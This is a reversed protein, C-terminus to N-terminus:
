GQGPTMQLYCAWPVRIAYPARDRGRRYRFQTFFGAYQPCAERLFRMTECEVVVVFGGREDGFTADVNVVRGSALDDRYELLESLARYADQRSFELHFWWRGDALTTSASGHGDPDGLMVAYYPFRVLQLRQETWDRRRKM